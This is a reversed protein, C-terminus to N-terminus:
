TFVGDTETTNRETITATNSLIATSYVQRIEESNAVCIVTSFDLETSHKAIISLFQKQLVVEFKARFKM